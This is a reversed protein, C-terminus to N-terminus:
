IYIIVIFLDHIISIFHSVFFHQLNHSTENTNVNKKIKADAAAISLEHVPQVTVDVQFFFTKTPYM